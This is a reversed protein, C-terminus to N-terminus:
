PQDPCSLSNPTNFALKKSILVGFCPHEGHGERERGFNRQGIFLTFRQFSDRTSRGRRLRQGQPCPNDQPSRLRIPRRIQLDRDLHVARPVRDGHPSVAEKLLPQRTQLICWTTPSRGANGGKAWTSTTESAVLWGDSCPPVAVRQVSSSMAAVVLLGVALLTTRKM